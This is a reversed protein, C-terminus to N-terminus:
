LWPGAHPVRSVASVAAPRRGSGYRGYHIGRVAVTYFSVPMFYRRYDGLLSTFNITGFTPAAEIRYREGQVPSTAGFNATDSVFAASSTGLTLSPAVATESTDEVVVRGTYLSYATTQVIQDFSIQTL